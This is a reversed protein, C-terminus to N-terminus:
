REEARARRLEEVKQTQAQLERKFLHHEGPEDVDRLMQLEYDVCNLAREAAHAAAAPSGTLGTEIAQLAAEVTEAALFDAHPNAGEGDDRGLDLNACADRYYRLAAESIPARSSAAKKLEALAHELAGVFRVGAREVLVPRTTQLIREVAWCAFLVRERKELARLQAELGDLYKLIDFMELAM